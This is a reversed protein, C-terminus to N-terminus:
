GIRHIPITTKNWKPTAEFKDPLMVRVRLALDGYQKFWKRFEVKLNAIDQWCQVQEQRKEQKLTDLQKELASRRQEVARIGDIRWTYLDFLKGKLYCYHQYIRYIVNERLKARSAIDRGIDHLIDTLCRVKDTLLGELADPEEDKSNSQWLASQDLAEKPAYELLNEITGYFAM